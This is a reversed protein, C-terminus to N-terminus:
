RLRQWTVGRILVVTARHEARRRASPAHEAEPDLVGVVWVSSDVSEAVAVSPVRMTPDTAEIV